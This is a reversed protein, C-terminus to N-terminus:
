LREIKEKLLQNILDTQQRSVEALASFNKSAENLQQQLWTIMKSQELAIDQLKSYSEDRRHNIEIMGDIEEHTIIM